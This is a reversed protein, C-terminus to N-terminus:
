GRERYIPFKACLELVQAGVRQEAAANGGDNSGSLGDLLEGIM